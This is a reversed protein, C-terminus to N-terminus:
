PQSREKAINWARELQDTRILFSGHDDLERLKKLLPEIQKNEPCEAISAKDSHVLDGIMLDISTGLDAWNDGAICGFASRVYSTWRHGHELQKAQVFFVGASARAAAKEVKSVIQNTQEVVDKKATEVSEKIAQRLEDKLLGLQVEYTKKLQTIEEDSENKIARIRSNSFLWLAIPVVIGTLVLTTAVFWELQTVANNYFSMVTQLDASGGPPTTLFPATTTQAISLLM